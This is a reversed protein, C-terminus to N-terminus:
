VSWRSDRSVLSGIPGPTQHILLKMTELKAKSPSLSNRIFLFPVNRAIGLRFDSVTRLCKAQVTVLRRQGGAVNRFPHGKVDDNGSSGFQTREKICGYHRCGADKARPGVLRLRSADQCIM